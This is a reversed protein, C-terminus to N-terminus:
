SIILKTKQNRDNGIAKQVITGDTNKPEKKPKAFIQPDPVSGAVVGDVINRNEIDENSSDSDSDGIQEKVEKLKQMLIKKTFPSTLDHSNM